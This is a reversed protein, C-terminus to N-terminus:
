GRAELDALIDALPRGTTDKLREHLEEDSIPSELGEWDDPNFKPTFYGLTNGSGDCLEIRESTGVLLSSMEPEVILKTM